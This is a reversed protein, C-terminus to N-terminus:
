NWKWDILPVTRPRQLYNMINPRRSILNVWKRLVIKTELSKKFVEGFLENLLLILALVYYDAVVPRKGLLYNGKPVILGEITDLIVEMNEAIQQASQRAQVANWIEDIDHLTRRILKTKKLSKTLKYVKNCEMLASIFSDGVTGQENSLVPLIIYDEGKILVYRINLEEFMLIFTESKGTYNPHHMINWTIESPMEWFESVTSVVHHIIDPLDYESSSKAVDESSSEEEKRVEESLPLVKLPIVLQDRPKLKRKEQQKKREWRYSNQSVDNIVPDVVEQATETQGV